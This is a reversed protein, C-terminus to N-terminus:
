YIILFREKGSLDLLLESTKWLEKLFKGKGHGIELFVISNNKLFNPLEKQMNVFFELGSQGALFAEKPEFFLSEKSLNQYEEESVYPPNSIIFDAREGVFPSFLNGERFEVNLNNKLSNKKATELAKSSIDSLIVILEPFAKKLALGICGSGCCIDWLVKGNLNFNKLKKIAIDALLETEPRPILVSPNVELDVGLFDVRGIIYDIPEFKARRKILERFWSLEKEELPKFYDLYLELRKVGLVHAM